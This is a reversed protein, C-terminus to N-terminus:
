AGRYRARPLDAWGFKERLVEFFSGPGRTLHHFRLDSPRICARDGARLVTHVQGDVTFDAPGSAETVILDIDMFPVVLPRITLTHSALPALVFADIGPAVIPGGAALAYATSGIPTAVILGDGDYTAVERGNSMAQLTIVGSAAGRTLVGDNLGLVPATLEGGARRVHCAIMRRPEEHLEGALARETAARADDAGFATLFGLRGLNIGLTPIQNTAMRRATALLSGDGGFVVVLDATRDELSSTRDMVVEVHEVRSRLWSSFAEVVDRSGGKREDGVVLVRAM